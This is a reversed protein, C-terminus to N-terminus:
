SWTASTAASPESLLPNVFEIPKGRPLFPPMGAALRARLIKSRLDEFFPDLNACPWIQTLYDVPMMWADAVDLAVTLSPDTTHFQLCRQSQLAFYWLLFPRLRLDSAHMGTVSNLGQMLRQALNMQHRLWQEAKRKHFALNIETEPFPFHKTFGQSIIVRIKFLFERGQFLTSGEGMCGHRDLIDELVLTEVYARYAFQAKDSETRQVLSGLAPVGSWLAPRRAMTQPPSSADHEFYRWCAGYLLALRAYVGWVSDRPHQTERGKWAPSRLLTEGPFLLAYNEPRTCAYDAAMEGAALTLSTHGSMLNLSNWVLRRAEERRIELETWDPDWAPTAAWLPTINAARESYAILSVRMCSCGTGAAPSSPVLKTQTPEGLSSKVSPVMGPIFVAADSDPADMSPWGLATLVGDLVWFSSTLRHATYAPHPCMEFLTLMFAAQAIGADIWGADISSQHHARAIEAMQLARQRGTLGAGLESSRMFTALALFSIILSPQLTDRQKPSHFTSWFLPVNFYSIFYPSFNFVYAIDRQIQKYSTERNSAYMDLLCDWWTKRAFDVSPQRIIEAEAEGVRKEAEAEIEERIKSWGEDLLETIYAAPHLIDAFSQQSFETAPFPM